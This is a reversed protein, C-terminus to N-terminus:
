PLARRDRRDLDVLIDHDFGRDIRLQLIDRFGRDDVFERGLADLEIDRLARQHRHRRLARHARQDAAAVIGLALEIARHGRLTLGARRELRKHIQGGNLAPRVGSV